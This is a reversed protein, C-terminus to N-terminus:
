KVSRVVVRGDSHLTVRSDTFDKDDITVILQAAWVATTQGQTGHIALSSLRAPLNGSTIGDRLWNQRILESRIRKEARAYEDTTMRYEQTATM